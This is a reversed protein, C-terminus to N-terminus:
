NSVQEIHVQRPYDQPDKYPYILKLNSFYFTEKSNEFMGLLLM